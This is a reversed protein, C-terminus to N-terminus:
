PEILYLTRLRGRPSQIEIRNAQISKIRDGDPLAEGARLRLPPQAGSTLVAYREPGRVVLAALRWVTAETGPAAAPAGAVPAGPARSLGMPDAAAIRAALDKALPPGDHDAPGAANAVAPGAFPVTLPPRHWWWGAIGAALWCLLALAIRVAPTM